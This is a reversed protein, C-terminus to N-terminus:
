IVGEAELDRIEDESLGLIDSFVQINHEKPLPVTDPHGSRSRSFKLPFGSAYAEVGVATRPHVVRQVMDRAILQEWRYVEEISRVPSCPIDAADLQVVIESVSHERTWEDIIADVKHNNRIRSGLDAFESQAYVDDKGILRTLKEWDGQSNVGIAISGDRATYTNFPSFRAIRNGQRIALGLEGYLDFPEDLILSVLCDAMSVDVFQGRGTRERNLLAGLVAAVSYVGAIGDSLPSGAKSAAGDPEGTISMLGTAAQIMLDFAKRHKEPGTSGYGTIACHILRPNAHLLETHGLGMQEMVGVRYNEILVDSKGVLDLFLARGRKSRLNLGISKKGRARKLYNLGVDHPTRAALSVGDPGFLPPAKFTPDGRAPDDIRIVEAGMGALILTAQPGSLFRSLDLVRIGSLLAESEGGGDETRDGGKKRREM